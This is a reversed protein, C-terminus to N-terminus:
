SRRDGGANETAFIALDFVLVRQQQLRIGRRIWSTGTSQQEVELALHDTDAFSPISNTASEFTDSECNGAINRRIDNLFKEFM